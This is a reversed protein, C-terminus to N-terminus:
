VAFAESEWHAKVAHVFHQGGPSGTPSETGLTKGPLQDCLCDRGPGVEIELRGSPFTNLGFPIVQGSLNPM